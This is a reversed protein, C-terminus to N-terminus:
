EPRINSIKGDEELTVRFYRVEYVRPRVPYVLGAEDPSAGLVVSRFGGLYEGLSAAKEALGEALFPLVDGGILVTEFLALAYTAPTPQRATRISCATLKGNEYSCRATHGLSDHFPVEAVVVPDRESVTGESQTLIRGERDLICFASPAELLINEGSAFISAQEFADPLDAIHFGTETQVSLQIGGQRYLTCLAGGIRQQALPKLTCDTPLFRSVYVAVGTRTFYVEVNEPPSFLFEEGFSFVAPHHGPCLFELLVGDAPDLEATREFGDVAGLPLGGAKLFCPKESLFYVRM